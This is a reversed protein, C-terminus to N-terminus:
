PTELEWLGQDCVVGLSAAFRAFFLLRHFTKATKATNRLSSKCNLKQRQEKQLRLIEAIFFSGTKKRGTSHAMNRRAASWGFIGGMGPATELLATAESL